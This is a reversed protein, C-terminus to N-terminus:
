PRKNNFSLNNADHAVQQRNVAITSYYEDRNCDTSVVCGACNDDLRHMTAFRQKPAIENISKYIHNNESAPSRQLYEKKQAFFLVFSGLVNNVM